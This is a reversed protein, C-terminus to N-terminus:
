SGFEVLHNGCLVRLAITRTRSLSPLLMGVLLAMIAVVILLEILTFGWPRRPSRGLWGQRTPAPM